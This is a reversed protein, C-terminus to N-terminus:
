FLHSTSCTYYTRAKCTKRFNTVIDLATAGTVVVKACDNSCSSSTRKKGHPCKDQAKVEFCLKDSIKKIEM